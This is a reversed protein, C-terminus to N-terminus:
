ISDKYQQRIEGTHEFYAEIANPLLGSSEVAKSAAYAVLAAALYADTTNGKSAATARAERAAALGLLLQDETVSAPDSVRKMLLLITPNLTDTDVEDLHFFLSSLTTEGAYGAKVLEETTVTYGPPTHRKRAKVIKGIVPSAGLYGGSTLLRVTIYKSM